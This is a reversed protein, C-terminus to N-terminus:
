VTKWNQQNQMAHKVMNESESAKGEVPAFFFCLNNQSNHFIQQRQELGICMKSALLTGFCIQMRFKIFTRTETKRVNKGRIETFSM